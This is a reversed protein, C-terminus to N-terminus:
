GSHPSNQEPMSSGPYDPPHGDSDDAQVAVVSEPVVLGPEVDRL